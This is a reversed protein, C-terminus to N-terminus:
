ICYALQQIFSVLQQIFIYATTSFGLLCVCTNTEDESRLGCGRSCSLQCSCKACAVSENFNVTPLQCRINLLCTRGSRGTFDAEGHGGYLYVYGYVSNIYPFNIGHGSIGPLSNVTLAIAICHMPIHEIIKVWRRFCYLHSIVSQLPLFSLISCCYNQALLVFICCSQCVCMPFYKVISLNSIIILYIPLLIYLVVWICLTCHAREFMIAIAIAWLPKSIWASM